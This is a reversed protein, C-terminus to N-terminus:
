NEKWRKEFGRDLFWNMDIGDRVFDYIYKVYFTYVNHALVSDACSFSISCMTHDSGKGYCTVTSTNNELEALGVSVFITDKKEVLGSRLDWEPYWADIDTVKVEKHQSIHYM